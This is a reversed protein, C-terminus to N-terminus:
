KGRRVGVESDAAVKSSELKERSLQVESECSAEKSPVRERSTSCLGCLPPSLLTSEFASPGAKWGPPAGVFWRCFTCGFYGGLFSLCLQCWAQAAVPRVDSLKRLRLHCPRVTCHLRHPKTRHNSATLIASPRSGRSYCSQRWRKPFEKVTM